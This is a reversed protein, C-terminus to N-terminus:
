QDIGNRYELALLTIDDAQEAGDTFSDLTQKLASLLKKPSFPRITESNIFSCLRSEGYLAADPNAAETVGDTYLLLSAGPALTLTTAVYRTGQMGGLVFHRKMALPAYVDRKSAAMFPPNHGANVCALEGTAINLSAAFCTVFMDTPNDQCLLNNVATLADGLDNGALMHNKLHAKATMMFLAAPIGKDSVDAIAFGLHTQDIMFFDYFDGGVEKAPVMSAFLDFEKQYPATTLMDPLAGQQIAKALALERNIRQEKDAAASRLAEVMANIGGSLATFEPNGTVAVQEHLDGATIKTLSANIGHVGAVVTKRVLLSVLLFLVGFLLLNGAVLYLAGANRGAYVENKPLLGLITYEGYGSVAYLFNEGAGRTWRAAADHPTAAPLGFDETSRGIWQRLASGIVTGDRLILISGGSGIRLGNSINEAGAVALATQLRHPYFGVQVIGPQDLRGVGAYQYLMGGAGRPMPPQVLSFAQSQVAPMFELSQPSTKMDYGVLDKHSSATIIGSRDCVHLEDVDLMSTLAELRGNDRALSPDLRLLEAFARAKATAARDTIGRLASASEANVALQALTDGIKARILAAANKEAQHTQDWFIIGFSFTFVAIMCVLLWQQFIRLM